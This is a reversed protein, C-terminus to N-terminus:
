EVDEFLETPDVIFGELVESTIPSADRVFERLAAMEFRAAKGLRWVQVARNGPDVVWYERVGHREYLSFKDSL